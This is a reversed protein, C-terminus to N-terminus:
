STTSMKIVLNTTKAQITFEILTEISGFITQFSLWHSTLLSSIPRYSLIVKDSIIYNENITDYPLTTKNNLDRELGVIMLSTESRKKQRRCDCCLSEFM